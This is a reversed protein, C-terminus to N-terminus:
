LFSRIFLWIEPRHLPQQRTQPTAFQIVSLDGKRMVHAVQPCFCCFSRHAWRLCLDAQPDAWDSWLRQQASMPYSLVWPKKMRVAFVRILSPLHAPQDSDKSPACAIKNTKCNQQNQWSTAWNERHESLSCSIKRSSILERCATFFLSCPRMLSRSSSSFFVLSSRSFFFWAAWSCSVSTVVVTVNLGGSSITNIKKELCCQGNFKQM